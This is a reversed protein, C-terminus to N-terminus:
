IGIHGILLYRAIPCPIYFLCSLLLCPPKCFVHVTEKNVCNFAAIDRGKLMKGGVTKSGLCSHGQHKGCALKYLSGAGGLGGVDTHALAIRRASGTTATFSPIVKATGADTAQVTAIPLLTVMEVSASFTVAVVVSPVAVMTPLSPVAAPSM